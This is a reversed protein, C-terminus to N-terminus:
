ASLRVLLEAFKESTIVQEAHQQAKIVWEGNVMVDAVPNQQSAFIVSDLLYQNANAFLKTKDSDLVLLDAQKGIALSGTNSNTSQAGGIAAQQWLNQGVSVQEPTALIARQQRILRQTYELWRM